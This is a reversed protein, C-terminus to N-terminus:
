GDARGCQRPHASICALLRGSGFKEEIHTDLARYQHRKDIKRQVHNSKKTEEVIAEGEQGKVFLLQDTIPYMLQAVSLFNLKVITKGVFFMM